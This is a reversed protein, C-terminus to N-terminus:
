AERDFCGDYHPNNAQTVPLVMNVNSDYPRGDRWTGTPFVSEADRGYQRVLRRLDGHRHGTLFLWFARERFLLDVREDVGVPDALPPMAPAIATERLDNLIALWAQDGGRLAAEAEILRAEIGSALVVPTGAGGTVIATPAYVETVNDFGPQALRELLSRPDAASRWNIGNMGESEPITAWRLSVINTWIGNQQGTGTGSGTHRTVYRFDSPVAETAAVAEEFRGLNLLARGRGVGVLHRVEATATSYSVASDFEILARELLEDRTVAPSYVPVNSELRSLPVGSCFHEAFFIKVFGDYAHLQSIRSTSNPDYKHLMDRALGLELRANHLARYAFHFGAGNPEGTRNDANVTNLLSTTAFLEDSFFGTYIIFPTTGSGFADFFSGEAGAAVAGAGAPNALQEPQIVDPADVDLLNDCGALGLVLGLLVILTARAAPCHATMNPM